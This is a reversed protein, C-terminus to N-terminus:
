WRLAWYCGVVIQCLRLCLIIHNGVPAPVSLPSMPNVAGLTTLFISFGQFPAMPACSCCSLPVPRPKWVGQPPVPPWCRIWRSVPHDWWTLDQSALIIWYDPRLAICVYSEFMNHNLIIWVNKLELSCMQLRRPQGVVQWHHQVNASGARHGSSAAVPLLSRGGQHGRHHSLCRWFTTQLIKIYFKSTDMLWSEQSSLMGLTWCNMFQFLCIFWTPFWTMLSCALPYVLGSSIQGSMQCALSKPKMLAGNTQATCNQAAPPGPSM